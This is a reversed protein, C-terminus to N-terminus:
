KEQVSALSSERASALLKEFYLERLCELIKTPQKYLHVELSFGDLTSLRYDQAFEPPIFVMHNVATETRIDLDEWSIPPAIMKRYILSRLYEKIQHMEDPCEKLDGESLPFRTEPEVSYIRLSNVIHQRNYYKTHRNLFDAKVLDKLPIRRSISCKYQVFFDDEDFNMPVFSANNVIFESLSRATADDLQCVDLIEFIFDFHKLYIFFKVFKEKERIQNYKLYKCLTEKAKTPQNIVESLLKQLHSKEKYDWDSLIQDVLSSICESNLGEFKDINELIFWDYRKKILLNFVKDNLKDHNSFFVEIESKAEDFYPSPLRCAVILPDDLDIGTFKEFNEAVVADWRKEILFYAVDSNLKKFKDLNRSVARSVASTCEKEILLSAIASHEEPDIGTFKEFN